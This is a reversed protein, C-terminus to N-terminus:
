IKFDLTQKHQLRPDGKMVVRWAGASNIKGLLKSEQLEMKKIEQLTGDQMEIFVPCDSIATGKNGDTFKDLYMQIDRMRMISISDAREKFRHIKFSTESGM